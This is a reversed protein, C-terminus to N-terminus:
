SRLIVRWVVRVREILQLSESSFSYVNQKLIVSRGLSVSRLERLCMVSRTDDMHYKSFFKPQKTVVSFWRISICFVIPSCHVITYVLNSKLRYPIVISYLGIFRSWGQGRFVPKHVRDFLLRLSGVLVWTWVFDSTPAGGVTGQPVEPLGM